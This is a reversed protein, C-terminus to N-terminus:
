RTLAKGQGSISQSPLDSGHVETHCQSCKTLFARKGSDRHSLGGHGELSTFEGEIGQLTAHFHVQHCQLCLFPENQRLLYNAVAGHASHCILCDETVPAHEFIFPGQKNAHCEFCLDTTRDGISAIVYEGSHHDHCDTCTMKGERIPHHSPLYTQGRIEEHCEWCLDPDSRRLLGSRQDGHILHCSACTVDAMAHLTAEFGGLGGARHCQLCLQNSLVPDANDPNVIDTAVATEIHISGPGHCAQCGVAPVRPAQYDRIRGHVSALHSNGLEQCRGEHCGSCESIDVYVADELHEPLSLTFGAAAPSIAALFIFTALWVVRGGPVSAFAQGAARAGGAVASVPLLIFVRKV